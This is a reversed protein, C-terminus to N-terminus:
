IRELKVELMARLHFPNLKKKQEVLEQKKEESLLGSNMLRNFPTQAEDHIKKVKAGERKKLALKMTPLFFNQLPNWYETYIENMLDVLEQSELRQYGFLTRVHTFNKQEVHCNDNKQYPRSRFFMVPKERKTFFDFLVRNMFESGCDSKFSRIPFPLATEIQSIATKVEEQTKARVARNLTWTSAIDTMTVSSVYSGAASEGCHAVTDATIFGPATVFTDEAQIPIRSKYWYSSPRSTSIGRQKKRESLLMRDITAHSLSLLETQIGLTCRKSYYELWEPLAKKVRKSCIRGMALWLVVLHERVESGYRAKRGRRRTPLTLPSNLVRIAYKRSYGCVACFEDLILRKEHRGSKQYREIIAFLYQRKATHSM